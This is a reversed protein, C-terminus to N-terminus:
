RIDFKLPAVIAKAEENYYDYVFSAPTQANIGYRPKFKFDFKTGQPSAWMYFIIRDPLVEYRSVSWNAERIKELAARDVDAGPPLGIEALLMGYYPYSTRKVEVSCIIEDMINAQQKDCKYDLSLGRTQNLNEADRWDIYHTSVVQAMLASNNSSTIKLRNTDILKDSLDFIIPEIQDSEVDFDRLIEDNLSISIKQNAGESLSVLFADLVNITTQTSYWVGYRDKNKLLYMTAKAILSETQSNKDATKMLLQLVVATTELKGTMGWGYFPTTTDLNWYATDNDAIALARLKDAVAQADAANGSDLSALGFLALVYPEDAETKQTKLYNLAKQVITKDTDKHMALTRAVYATFLKTRKVDQTTQGYYANDFSGDSRQQAILYSQARKVADEDVEIFNKAEALFRLGYATLAINSSDKGGWYSIGGDAVQYGMLREYGIQLFKKANQELNKPIRRSTNKGDNAFKLIMLNPYTSSITQEGCGYPRKLLGEVSETVHAMLNPYIKVEAKNTKLLANSPFNIDFTTSTTFLKSETRVIEQGNPRVTVPKEIADSDTEAIATVKQKGENVASIAKFGFIANSSKGQEVEIQSTGATLFSFWDSQAMEVNVKQKTPTYNRVQTPLFIEDGATLFKPPDLDVFFPQFAKIEKSTVGVRGNVDSAVAYIKWTTINDALRFRISVKGNSDTVLEPIWLLTEPFYERLRPTSKNSNSPLNNAENIVGSRFNTVEQGDVIFVNETGSAGDIQFGGSLAEPRVNPSLKLLSVFSTGRPLNEIIDRSIVTDIKTDGLDITTNSDVTVFVSESVAGVTLAFNIEAIRERGIQIENVISTKFGPSEIKVSYRGAALNTQLYLGVDNTKTEISALTQTNTIRVTANAVVAANADTVVGYIAGNGNLITEKPVSLTARQDNAPKESIVGGFSGLWIDQYDNDSKVGDAGLSRIKVMGIERIVPLVNLIEKSKEGKKAVDEIVIKNGTQTKVEYKLYFPRNWGDRLADFDIGGDKLVQKFEAEDKPFIKKEALYKTMVQSIKAETEAFYDTYNTWVTFDDYYDRTYKKDAGNSHFYITLYRGYTGFEIRYPEGWRDKLDDLNIDKAALAERLTEIDHVFKGTTKPYNIVAENLRVGEKMFYQFNQTLAVFDDADGFTKNAGASVIQIIDYWRQTSFKAQFPTGWPDRIEDFNVGGGTLIKRLSADDTPHEYNQNYQRWFISQINSLKRSVNDGFIYQLNKQYYADFENREFNINAFQMEAALQKEATLNKTDMENWANSLGSLNQFINVGGFDADTRAREEVAQDLIVVGLAAETRRNDSTSVNFNMAAEEAPRYVDKNTKAEVKLNQPAPYIVGKSDGITEGGPLIASVTLYNKFVPNYPIKLEARGNRLKVRQSQVVFKASLVDVYITENAESSLVEVKLSDGQRYITKDTRVLIQKERSDIKFGFSDNGLHSEADRAVIKFEFDKGYVGDARKPAFFEAKAAGQSNTKVVAVMKEEQEDKYKGRIEVDCVAPKGDASFTSVYLMLPLKPNIDGGREKTMYIHIPERTVRLDFRRQETKNTSYDTFYAAFNLDQFKSDSNAILREHAKSLDIKATYKGETDTEGEYVAEEQINWKQDYFDWNRRGEQVIKVKGAGVPKGFLYMADIKVEAETQEPLYFDKDAKTQVVFNPLDYRSIKFQALGINDSDEDNAEIRYSGLKANAPIQWEIAAVGFRSTTVKERYLTKNEEDKILIEFDKGNVVTLGEGSKSKRMTLARVYIKQAPQYLPKDTMFYVYPSNENSDLDENIQMKMGNKTGSVTIETEEDEAFKINAPIEFTLVAYGEDDTKGNAKLTLEDEEAETELEIELEASIEVGAIPTNKTPHFAQVRAEYRMGAYIEKSATVKLEFLDPMIESLSIIGSSIKGNTELSYRLRNWLMTKVDSEAVRFSVPVVSRGSEIKKDADGRALIMDNKDLVELHIKSASRKQFDSVVALNVQLGTETSFAQTESENVKVFSQGFVTGVLFLCVVVAFSFNVKMM